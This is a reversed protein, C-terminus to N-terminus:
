QGDKFGFKMGQKRFVEKKFIPNYVMYTLLKYPNRMNTRLDFARYIISSLSNYNKRCWFSIETLEDSTM